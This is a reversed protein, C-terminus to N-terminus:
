RQEVFLNAIRLLTGRGASAQAAIKGAAADGFGVDDDLRDDFIGHGFSLQIGREFRLHTCPRHERGVGGRDSELLESLIKVIRRSENPQM